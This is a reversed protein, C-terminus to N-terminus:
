VGAKAAGLLFAFTLASGLGAAAADVGDSPGCGLLAGILGAIAAGAVGGSAVLRAYDM